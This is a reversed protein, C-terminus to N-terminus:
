GVETSVSVVVVIILVCFLSMMSRNQKRRILMVDRIVTFTEPPRASLVVDIRLAHSM